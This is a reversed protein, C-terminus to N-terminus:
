DVRGGVYLWRGALRVFESIEHMAQLGLPNDPDTYWARFEVTGRDGDRAHALVELKRWHPSDRLLEEASVRPATAPFWTALLYRADGRVYATFRSRM